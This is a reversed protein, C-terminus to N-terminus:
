GNAALAASELDALYAEFMATMQRDLVPGLLSGFPGGRPTYRFRVSTTTRDHDDGPELDVTAEGSRVPLLKTRDLSVVLQRGEDWRTVTEDAGGFPKFDAHRRAGVGGTQDGLANCRTIDRRWAQNPFDALVAWIAMAPADIQRSLTISREAM